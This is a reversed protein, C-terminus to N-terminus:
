DNPYVVGKIYGAPKHQLTEFAQQIDDLRFTHTIIEDQVFVHNNILSAARRAADLPAPESNPHASFITTGKDLFKRFDMEPVKKEYYSMICLRAPGTRIYDACTEMLQPLGTGEIVFDAMHGNTLDKIKQPADEKRSNVVATAGMKKALELKTDDVDVAILHSLMNGKLAQICWLGMPGCGVVVGYDGVKPDASNLVTLICKLPELFSKKVDIDDNLLFCRDESVAAYQSFGELRDPLVAVKDGKKLTTVESGTEEIIGAWEHGLTMPTTGIYGKFHNLEWNCLGCVEVRVLVENPLVEFEREQIEFRGPEVLVASRTKM